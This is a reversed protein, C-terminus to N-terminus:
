CLGFDRIKASFDQDLLINSPKIDGHIVPPDLSHLYELGRTIVVVASFSKKTRGSWFSLDKPVSFRM